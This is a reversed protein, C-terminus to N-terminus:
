TVNWVLFKWKLSVLLGAQKKLKLHKVSCSIAQSLEKKGKYVQYWTSKITGFLKIYLQSCLSTPSKTLYAEYLDRSQLQCCWRALWPIDICIDWNLIKRTEYVRRHLILIMVWQELTEWHCSVWRSHLWPQPSCHCPPIWLPLCWLLRYYLGSTDNGCIM